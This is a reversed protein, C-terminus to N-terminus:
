DWVQRMTLSKQITEDWEENANSDASIGGGVYMAIQHDDIQMCRLNIYLRTQQRDNVEGIYGTYYNRSYGEVESICDLAAKVPEGGIAPTPHLQHIINRINTSPAKKFDYETKLHAVRGSEITYPGKSTELKCDNQAMVNEIHRRVFDHEEMEKKRWSYQHDERVPQTAALAVTKMNEKDADMLLEPTAGMWMGNKASFYFSVFTNPYKQTLAMFTHFPTWSKPRSLRIVRSLIAKQIKGSHFADFYQHIQRFYEQQDIEKPVSPLTTAQVPFSQIKEIEPDSLPLAACSLRVAQVTPRVPFPVIVFETFHAGDYINTTLALKIEPNDPFQYLCFEIGRELCLSAIQIATLEM